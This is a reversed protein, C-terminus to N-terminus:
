ARASTVRVRGRSMLPKPVREARELLDGGGLERVGDALYGHDLAGGGVRLVGLVDGWQRESVEGGRRYWELEALITDEPSSLGSTTAYM